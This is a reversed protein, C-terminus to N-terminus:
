ETRWQRTSERTRNAQGCIRSRRSIFATLSGGVAVRSCCELEIATDGDQQGLSWYV